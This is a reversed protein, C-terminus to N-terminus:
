YSSKMGSSGGKAGRMSGKGPCGSLILAAVIMVALSIWFTKKVTDGKM